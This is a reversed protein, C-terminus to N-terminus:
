AMAAHGLKELLGEILQEQHTVIQRYAPSDTRHEEVRKEKLRQRLFDELLAREEDTLNLHLEAM